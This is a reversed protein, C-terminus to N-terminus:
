KRKVFWIFGSVVGIALLLILLWRITLVSNKEPELQVFYKSIPFNTVSDKRLNQSDFNLVPDYKQFQDFTMTSRLVLDEIKYM